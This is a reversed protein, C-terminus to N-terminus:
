PTEQNKKQRTLWGTSTPTLSGYIIVPSFVFFSLLSLPVLYFMRWNRTYFFANMAKISSVLLIFLLLSLLVSWFNLCISIIVCTFIICFYTYRFSAALMFLVFVWSIKKWKGLVFFLAPTQSRAWRLQQKIFGRVTAPSITYAIADLSCGSQKGQEAFLCTLYRDDGAICERKMFTQSVYAARSVLFTDKRWLSLAGSLCTVRGFYSQSAREQNFSYWYLCSIMRTLVNEEENLLRVNGTVSDWKNVFAAKYLEYLANPKLITDSDVTVIWDYNAQNVGYIQAARKGQNKGLRLVTVKSHDQVKVPQCSGDDVVFIEVEVNQQIVVSDVVKQVTTDKENFAPIVVTLHPVHGLDINRLHITKRYTLFGFIIQFVWLCTAIINLFLIWGPMELM